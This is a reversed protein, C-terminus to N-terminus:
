DEDQLVPDIRAVYGDEKMLATLDKLVEDIEGANPHFKDGAVFLNTKKRVVIWSCGPLKKVGREKMAKRITNVGNWDGAAAYINSLLVYPSSNQPELEILREAARQGRVNDGHIRCAALFTAWIVADPQFPLGDIFEEAEKLHGGRGLLDVMCAYHDVRPQIEYYNVMIDFFRCGESVLGAHSCATLIGIFTIDDPKVLAHKMRDFIQLADEAYGNKAFGVIMSNWSIVDQRNDMEEFIQMSSRMDGCKAYMDVLASSTSEDSNFGSRIILCHVERGDKLAASCACARLVSAFTAQDPPVNGSHMEKFLWLAEESYDNQAHGSIIATWLVSNKDPFELFLKNADEISLFNLYMGLLPVGLFIDGQLLGSKITYCHIQRGMNLRSTGGCAPLISAFTIKTPKLGAMQMDQFLHVAEDMQNNQIYGAILANRSVESQEPMQSLIRTSAEIAGCKAYMDILSSGAYLKFDLGSKVSFCHVQQGQELAQLRACTSLISSLAYEDPVFGNLIMRQFMILAEEEDEEHGYGVIIANWSVNDRDQIIEFQQRADKLDGSKAYMDVLANGVFVSLDLNIKIVSSHLQRGMDLSELCACAKLVSTYTFEDPQIGCDKMDSVLDLVHYSQGNHAYGKLIANWLVINRETVTAFVNSADEMNQSEVYMNILSSGVYVNSDLGLRIAESHVQQGQTLAGLSAIASLVSGLTSRTPKVGSARMDEFFNIAEVNYGSQAHKSIMINWAVVNPNPMQAFLCRADSHRGLSFCATLVTGFTVQDPERGLQQMEKFLKLAEDPLGFRAYGAIMATWSITDPDSARDFIKWADIICDCKAYMSILSGECSSISEFGMKIVDCHVQKGFGVARLRGCASLVISFTFENPQTRCNRMSGFAWIVDELLGCGSYLSLMSNWASGDREDLRCFTKRALDLDGCKSYLDVLFNGLKGKLGFGIKLVQAHITKSKRLSQAQLHPTEGHSQVLKCEQLCAKLLDNYIHHEPTLEVQIKRNIEKTAKPLTSLKFTLSSISNLKRLNSLPTRPYM